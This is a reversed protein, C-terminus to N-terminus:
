ANTAKWKEEISGDRFKGNLDLQFATIVQGPQLAFRFLGEIEKNRHNYLEMEIFTVATFCDAQVSMSLKKIQMPQDLLRGQANAIMCVSLAHMLLLMKRM